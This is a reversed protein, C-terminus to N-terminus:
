VAGEPRALELPPVAFMPRTTSCGGDMVLVKLGFCIWVVAPLPVLVLVIVNAIVLPLTTAMSALKVSLRAVFTPVTGPLRTTALVGLTTLGQPPVTVAVAPDPVM